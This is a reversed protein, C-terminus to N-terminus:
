EGVLAELDDLAGVGGMTQMFAKLSPANERVTLVAPGIPDGGTAGPTDAYAGHFAFYAQNIKRLLYGNEVFLLRRKEMYAEAEEIQGEALLRDAEIRTEQMAARFDFVPVDEEERDGREIEIETVIEKGYYRVMVQEGIERGFVSATTENITRVDNDAAYRFGLPRPFLWVHVWEHAITDTVFDLNGTEIVMTPYVALGGIPVVLASLDNEEFVAQELVDMQPAALGHTLAFVYKQEISDRPSVILLMPLPTMHMKVPPLLRHFGEDELVAGVQQELIAEALPQLRMLAARKQALEAQLTQSAQEPDAATAYVTDLDRGLRRVAATEVMFDRVLQPRVDEPVYYAAGTLDMTIKQVWADVEWAVFDFAVADVRANISGREGRNQFLLMGVILALVIGVLGPLIM